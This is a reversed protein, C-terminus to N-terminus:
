DEILDLLDKPLKKSANAGLLRIKEARGILTDGYKKSEVLKNMAGEYAGQASDLKRGIEKLDEVFSVFKDYLLGSQKAILLVSKKQKEQKWIYAITRMTALLTSTTVMVINKDLAELFLSSDEQLALSFAPEVPVFMLLYDPSNIQYLKQYNKASLEKIHTRLSALHAKLNNTEDEETEANYFAEYAKLSVKSDIVLQKDEPLYIICDPRKQKGNEDTLSIQTKFHIDKTLGAKELLTELQFEGWDGQFKNDGKLASALQSADTSLQLNLAKLQNIQENLQVRGKTEELYTKEIKNEFDKIREKLPQLIQDLNSQNQKTFRESKEELLRNAVVEFNTQFQVQLESLENKQEILKEQLNQAFQEKASLAKSVLKLDEQLYTNDKKTTSERQELAEYMERVVYEAKVKEPSILRKSEGEYKFKAILFGVLSGLVLSIILHILTIEM